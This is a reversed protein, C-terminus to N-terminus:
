EGQYEMMERRYEYYEQMLDNARIEEDLTGSLNNRVDQQHQLMIERLKESAAHPHEIKKKPTM